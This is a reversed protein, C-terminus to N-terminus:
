YDTVVKCVRGVVRLDGDPFIEQHVPNTSFPLVRRQGQPGELYMKFTADGNTRFVYYKRSVLDRDNLNVFIVSGDPAIRDMSDGVVNLAIWRGPGLGPNPIKPGDPGDEIEGFETLKSAAVWSLLPISQAAPAPSELYAAIKVIEAAQLRRPKGEGKLLRTVQSPHIGLAAAIGAKTKDPKQALAEKIWDIYPDM